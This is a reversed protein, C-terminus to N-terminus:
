QIYADIHIKGTAFNVTGAGWIQRTNVWAYDEAATSLSVNECTDAIPEAARPVGV